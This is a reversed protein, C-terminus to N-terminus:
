HFMWPVNVFYSLTHLWAVQPSATPQPAKSLPGKGNVRGPGANSVVLTGFFTQSQYLTSLSLRPQTHMKLMHEAAKVFAGPIDKNRLRVHLKQSCSFTFLFDLFMTDGSRGELMWRKSCKVSFRWIDAAQSQKNRKGWLGMDVRRGFSAVQSGARHRGWRLSIGTRACTDPQFAPDHCRLFHKGWSTPSGCMPLLLPAYLCWYFLESLLSSIQRKENQSIYIM